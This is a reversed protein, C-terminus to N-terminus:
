EAKRMNSSSNRTSGALCTRPSRRFKKRAATSVTTPSVHNTRVCRGTLSFPGGILLLRHPDDDEARASADPAARHGLRERAPVLDGRDHAVRLGVVEVAVAQGDHGAVGGIGGAHGLGGGAVVEGDAGDAGAEALRGLRQRGRRASQELPERARADRAQDHQSAGAAELDCGADADEVCASKRSSHFGSASAWASDSSM